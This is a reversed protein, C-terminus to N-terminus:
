LLEDINDGQSPPRYHIGVVVDAKDNVKVKMRVWLIEVMNNGVILELCDLRERVCQELDRDQRGQKERRFIRYNDM